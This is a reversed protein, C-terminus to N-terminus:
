FRTKIWALLNTVANAAAEQALESLDGAAIEGAAAPINHASEGWFTTQTIVAGKGDFIWLSLAASVGVSTIGLVNSGAEDLYCTFGLVMVGDAAPFAGLFQRVKATSLYKYGNPVIYKSNNETSLDKYAQSDLMTDEDVITFPFSGAFRALVDTKTNELAAGLDFEGGETVRLINASLSHRFEGLLINKECQISVLAVNKLNGVAAKNFTACSTLIVLVALAPIIAFVSKKM